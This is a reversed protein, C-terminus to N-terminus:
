SIQINSKKKMFGWGRVWGHSECVCVNVFVSRRAKITADRGRASVQMSAKSSTHINDGACAIQNGPMTM